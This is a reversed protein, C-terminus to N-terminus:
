NKLRFAHEWYDFNIERFVEADRKTSQNVKTRLAEWKSVSMTGKAAINRSIGIFSECELEMAVELLLDADRRGDMSVNRPRLGQDFFVLDVTKLKRIEKFVNALKGIRSALRRLARMDSANYSIEMEIHRLRSLLACDEITGLSSQFRPFSQDFCDSRISMEVITENYLISICDEYTTRCALLIAISTVANRGSISTCVEDWVIIPRRCRVGDLVCSFIHSRIEAPLSLLSCSAQTSTNIQTDTHAKSAVQQYDISDNTNTLPRESM